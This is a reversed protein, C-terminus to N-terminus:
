WACSPPSCRSLSGPRADRASIVQLEVAHFRWQGALVSLASATVLSFLVCVLLLEILTHGWTDRRHAGQKGRRAWRWVRDKM